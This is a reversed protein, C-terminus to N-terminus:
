MITCCSNVGMRLEPEPKSNQIQTFINLFAEQVNECSKASTEIYLCNWKSACKEAESTLVLRYDELDVKNGVLLFPVPKDDGKVSLIQEHFEELATFSEEDNIAFVLLFGEGDKYYAERVVNYDEYGTPNVRIVFLERDDNIKWVNHM